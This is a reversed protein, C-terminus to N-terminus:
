RFYLRVVRRDVCVHDTAASVTAGAVFQRLLDDNVAHQLAVISIKLLYKIFFSNSNMYALCITYYM